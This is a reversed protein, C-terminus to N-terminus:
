IKVSIEHLIEACIGNDYGLGTEFRNSLESKPLPEANLEDFLLFFNFPQTNISVCWM